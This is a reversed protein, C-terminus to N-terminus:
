HLRHEYGESEVEKRLEGVKRYGVGTRLFIQRDTIGQEKRILKKIRVYSAELEKKRKQPPM